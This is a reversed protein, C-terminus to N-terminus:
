GSRKGRVEMWEKGRQLGSLARERDMGEQWLGLRLGKDEFGSM